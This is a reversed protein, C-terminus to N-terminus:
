DDLGAGTVVFHPEETAPKFLRWHEGDMSDDPFVELVFGESLTLRFGGLDDAACGEVVLLSADRAQLLAALRECRRNPERDWDFAELNEFPDDGARYYLDRRGVVIGQPGVIRWTCQVHLAYDGVFVSEGRRTTTEIRAGLQFCQIDAARHSAWLPM